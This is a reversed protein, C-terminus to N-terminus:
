PSFTINPLINNNFDNIFESGETSIEITKDRLPLIVKKGNKNPKYEGDVMVGVTGPVKPLAYPSVTVKKSTQLGKLNTLTSAYSQSLVQIRLSFSSAQNTLSPVTGPYFYGDLSAGGSGTDDVYGSWTRPYALVLSGLAQPGNYNRLPQKSVEAFEKDKATSETQRAVTVATAIKADVNNKYDQKGSYAWTAFGATALFLVGVIVLPLLLINISGNQDHKYMHYDYSLKAQRALM